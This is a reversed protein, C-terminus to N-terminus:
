DGGASARRADERESASLVHKEFWRWMMDVRQEIRGIKLAVAVISGLFMIIQILAGLSIEGTFKM